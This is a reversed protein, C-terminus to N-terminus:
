ERAQHQRLVEEALAARMEDEKSRSTVEKNKAEGVEKPHAVKYKGWEEEAKEADHPVFWESSRTSRREDEMQVRNRHVVEITTKGNAKYPKKVKIPGVDDITGDRVKENLDILRNLTVPSKVTRPISREEEYSDHYGYRWTIARRWIM